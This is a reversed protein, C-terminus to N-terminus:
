AMAAKGREQAEAVARKLEEVVTGAEELMTDRIIIIVKLASVTRTLERVLSGKEELAAALRANEAQSAQLQSTLEAAATGKEELLERERQAQEERLRRNLAEM